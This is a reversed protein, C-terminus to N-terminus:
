SEPEAMVDDIAALVADVVDDGLAGGSLLHHDADVVVVKKTPLKQAAARDLASLQQDGSGVVVVAKDAHAKVLKPTAETLEIWGLWFATTAGGVRADKAFKGNKMAAFEAARTGALNKLAASQELLQEKAPSTASKAQEATLKHRDLLADTLVVDIARPIPALLVLASAEAACTSSLAVQGAQGHAWVILHGDFTPLTKAFACAADVDDKLAVPGQEDVDNQANKKCSAVDNPGCTRKDYTVVTAGRTALATAWATGVDVAKDYVVVGDGKRTGEKNVDGGGPVIVVVPGETDRPGTVRAGLAVAGAKDDVFSIVVDAVDIPPPPPPPPPPDEGPRAPDVAVVTPKDSLRRKRKAKKTGTTVCASLLAVAVVGVILGGLRSRAGIM